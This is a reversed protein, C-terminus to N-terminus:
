FTDYAIKCFFFWVYSCATLQGRSIFFSILEFCLTRNFSYFLTIFLCFTIIYLYVNWHNRKYENLWEPIVDTKSVQKEFSIQNQFIRKSINDCNEGEEKWTWPAVSHDLSPCLERCRSPPFRMTADNVSIFQSIIKAKQERILIAQKTHQAAEEQM